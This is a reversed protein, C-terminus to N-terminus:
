HAGHAGGAPFNYLYRYSWGLPQYPPQPPHPFPAFPSSGCVFVKLVGTNDSGFLGPPVLPVPPGAPGVAGPTWRATGGLFGCLDM